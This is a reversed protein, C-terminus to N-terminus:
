CDQFFVYEAPPFSHLGQWEFNFNTCLYKGLVMLFVVTLECKISM